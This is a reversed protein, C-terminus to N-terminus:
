HGDPEREEDSIRRDQHGCRWAEKDYGVGDEYPNPTGPKAEWGERYM